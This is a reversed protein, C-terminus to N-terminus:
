IVEIDQLHGELIGRIVDEGISEVKSALIDYDAKLMKKHANAQCEQIILNIADKSQQKQSTSIQHAENELIYYRIDHINAAFTKCPCDVVDGEETLVRVCSDIMDLIVNQNTTIIRFEENSQNAAIMSILGRIQSVSLEREPFLYTNKTYKVVKELQAFTHYPAVLCKVVKGSYMMKSSAIQDQTLDFLNDTIKM